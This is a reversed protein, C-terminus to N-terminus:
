SCSLSGTRYDCNVIMIVSRVPVPYPYTGVPPYDEKYIGMKVRTLLGPTKSLVDGYDKLVEDLDWECFGEVKAPLVEVKPIDIEPEDAM